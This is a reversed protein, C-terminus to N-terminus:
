NLAVVSVGPKLGRDLLAGGTLLVFLLLWALAASKERNFNTERNFNMLAIRGGGLTFINAGCGALTL